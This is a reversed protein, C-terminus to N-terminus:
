DVAFLSKNEELFNACFKQVSNEELQKVDARFNELKVKALYNELDDDNGNLAEILKNM